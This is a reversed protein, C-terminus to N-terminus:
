LLFLKKKKRWTPVFTSKRSLNVVMIRNINTLYFVTLLLKIFYTFFMDTHPIKEYCDGLISNSFVKKRWLIAFLNVFVCASCVKWCAPLGSVGYKSEKTTRRINALWIESKFSFTRQSLCLVSNLLEKILNHM